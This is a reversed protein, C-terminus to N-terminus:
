NTQESVWENGLKHSLTHNPAVIVSQESGCHFPKEMSGVSLSTRTRVRRKEDLSKVAQAAAWGVMEKKVSKAAEKREQRYRETQIHRNRGLINKDAM